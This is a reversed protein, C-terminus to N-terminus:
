GKRFNALKKASTVVWTDFAVCNNMLFVASDLDFPIEATLDLGTEDVLVLEALHAYTFGKWGKIVAQAYNLVYKEGDLEKFPSGTEQDFKQILSKERVKNLVSANVYALEVTMGKCLPFEFESQKANLVLNSLKLNNM